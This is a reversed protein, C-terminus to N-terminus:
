AQRLFFYYILEGHNQFLDTFIDFINDVNVNKFDLILKGDDINFIYNKDDNIVIKDKNLFFIINFIFFIFWNM